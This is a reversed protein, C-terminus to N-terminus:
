QAVAVTEEPATAPVVPQVIKGRSTLLVVSGPIFNATDTGPLLLAVSAGVRVDSLQITGIETGNASVVYTQGNVVQDDFGLSVSILGNRPDVSLIRTKLTPAVFAPVLSGAEAIQADPTAPFPPNIGQSKTWNLLRAYGAFAKEQKAIAEEAITIQEDLREKPFMNAIQENKRAIESTARDLESQLQSSKASFQQVQGRLEDRTRILTANREELDGIQSKQTAITKNRSEVTTELNQKDNKLQDINKRKEGLLTNVKPLADMRQVFEKGAKIEPDGLMWESKNMAVKLNNTHILYWATGAGIAGAIALIRISLSVTKNM